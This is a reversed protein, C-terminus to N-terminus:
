QSIEPYEDWERGDLLRGANKKGARHLYVVRDGHFGSGGALNLRRIGSVANEEPVHQWDPDDKDRDYFPYWEGWQKFFFPVEAAECQDRLSRAWDPHLPRAGPGSEGGAVCWDLWHPAKLGSDRLYWELNIPGLLPECSVWHIAAPIQLLVPIRKDAQEQNEATVGLWLNQIPGEPYYQQFFTIMREPRKTLVMFTHQKALRITYLVKQIFSHPVDPHFLDGM